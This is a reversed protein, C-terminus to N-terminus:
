RLVAASERENDPAGEVKADEIHRRSVVASDEWLALMGAERCISELDSGVFGETIESLTTILLARAPDM